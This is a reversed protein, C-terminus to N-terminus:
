ENTCEELIRRVFVGIIEQLYASSFRTDSLVGAEGRVAHAAAAFLEDTPKKGEILDECAALRTPLPKQAVFAMRVNCMKGRQLRLAAAVQLAPIDGHNRVLKRRALRVGRLAPVHVETLLEGQKLLVAPPQKFFVGSRYTRTRMAHGRVVFEADLVCLLLPLDSWRLPIMVNGGVTIMHRLPETAADAACAALPGCRASSALAALPTMAGLVVGEGHAKIYSLGIRSLDVLGTVRSPCHAGLFTGGALPVRGTVSLMRLAEAISAPRVFEQIGSM